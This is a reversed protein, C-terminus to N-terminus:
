KTNIQSSASKDINIATTVEKIQMVHLTFPKEHYYEISFVKSFLWQAEVNILTDLLLFFNWYERQHFKLNKDHVDCFVLSDNTCSTHLLPCNICTKVCWKIQSIVSKLNHVSSSSFVTSIFFIVQLRGIM